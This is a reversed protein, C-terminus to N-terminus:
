LIGFKSMFHAIKRKKTNYWLSFNANSMQNSVSTNVNLKRGNQSYKFKFIYYYDEVRVKAYWIGIEM